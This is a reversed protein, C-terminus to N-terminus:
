AMRRVDFTVPYPGAASALLAAAHNGHEGREARIGRLAAIRRRVSRGAEFRQGPLANVLLTGGCLM